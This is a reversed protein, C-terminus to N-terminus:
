NTIALSSPCDISYKGFLVGEAPWWGAFLSLVVSNWDNTNQFQGFVKSAPIHDALYALPVITLFFLLVFLILLISEFRPLHRGLYTNVFFSWAMIAYFILTVHWLQPVYNPHNLIMLGQVSSANAYCVSSVWSQYAMVTMWGATYGLYKRCWAPALISVWNYPGGSLPIMSALEAVVLVQTLGGVWSAIFSYIM